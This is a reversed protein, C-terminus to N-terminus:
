SVHTMVEINHKHIYRTYTQSYKSFSTKRLHYKNLLDVFWLPYAGLVKVEM